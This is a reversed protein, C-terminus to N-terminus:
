VNELSFFCINEVAKILEYRQRYADFSLKEWPSCGGGGQDALKLAMRRKDKALENRWELANEVKFQIESFIKVIYLPQVFCFKHAFCFRENHKQRTVEKLMEKLQDLTLM